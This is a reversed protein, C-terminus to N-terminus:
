LYVDKCDPNDLASDGSAQTVMVFYHLKIKYGSGEVQLIFNDRTLDPADKNPFYNVDRWDGEQYSELTGHKPGQIISVKASAYDIKRIYIADTSFYDNAIIAPMLDIQGSKLVEVLKCVGLIHEQKTAQQKSNAKAALIVTPMDPPFNPQDAIFMTYEGENYGLTHKAEALLAPLHENLM